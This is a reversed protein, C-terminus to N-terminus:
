LTGSSSNNNGDDDWDVVSVGSFALGTGNITVAYTYIKGANWQPDGTYEITMEKGDVTLNIVSKAADCPLAYNTITLNSNKDSTLEFGESNQTASKLDYTYAADNTLTIGLFTGDTLKMKTNDTLTNMKRTYKVETVRTATGPYSDGKKIILKIQTFAHKLGISVNPGSQNVIGGSRNGNAVPQTSQFKTSEGASPNSNDYAVGYMYDYAPLTFDFNADAPFAPSLSFVTTSVPIVPVPADLTAAPANTGTSITTGDENLTSADVIDSANTPAPYCSFIIANKESELWLIDQATAPVFTTHGNSTNGTFKGYTGVPWTGYTNDTSEKSVAYFGIADVKEAADIGARTLSIGAIHPTLSVPGSEEEKVENSCSLSIAGLLLFLLQYNYPKM